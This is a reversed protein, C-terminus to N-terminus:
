PVVPTRLPWPSRPPVDPGAWAQAPPPASGTPEAEWAAVWDSWRIVAGAFGAGHPPRDVPGGPRHVLEVGSMTFLGALADGLVRRESGTLGALWGPRSVGAALVGCREELDVWLGAADHDGRILEVRIRDTALHISGPRVGARGLAATEGLLAALDREVFRRVSEEVHHLAERRKMAAGERGGRRARRLRGFLKPLTGSHFGPRVLRVVTEGHSGVVVPGLAEPRNAEYLRWNSSLEWVLFGFVGPIMMVTTTTLFLSWDRGLVPALVKAVHPITPLLLKHSVPVVPFHKIPNVQPEILLNVCVRVAYAM